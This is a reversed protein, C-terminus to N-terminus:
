YFLKEIENGLSNIQSSLWGIIDDKENKQNELRTIEDRIDDQFADLDNQFQRYYSSWEYWDVMFDSKTQGRWNPVNELNDQSQRIHNVETQITQLSRKASRLRSLKEDISAIESQTAYISHQHTNIINQLYYVQNYDVKGM